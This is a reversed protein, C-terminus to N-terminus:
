MLGSGHEAVGSSSMWSCVERPLAPLMAECKGAVALHYCMPGACESHEAGVASGFKFQKPQIKGCQTDAKPQITVQFTESLVLGALELLAAQPFFFLTKKM